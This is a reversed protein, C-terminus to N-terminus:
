REVRSYMNSVKVTMTENSANTLDMYCDKYITRKETKSPKNSTNRVKGDTTYTAYVYEHEKDTYVATQSTDNSYIRVKEGAGLSLTSFASDSYAYDTTAPCYYVEMSENATIVLEKSKMLSRSYSNNDLGSMHLGKDDYEIYEFNRSSFYVNVQQNNNPTLKISEGSSLYVTNYVKESTEQFQANELPISVVLGDEMSEIVAEADKSIKYSKMTSEYKKVDIGGDSEKQMINFIGDLGIPLSSNATNPVKISKGKPITIYMFTGDSTTTIEDSSINEHSNDSIETNNNNKMYGCATCVGNEFIHEQDRVYDYVEITEGCDECIVHMVDILQHYTDTAQEFTRLDIMCVEYTNTHNCNSNNTDNTQYTISVTQTYGNWEVDAGMSESIVRVPVLTRDNFIQPPVDITFFERELTWMETDDIWLIMICENDQYVEIVGDYWEVECGMAEFIARMPVLTRDDQIIPPQDFYIERGNLEVTINDSAHAPIIACSLIISLTILFTIIKKM